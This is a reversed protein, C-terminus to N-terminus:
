ALKYALISEPALLFSIRASILSYVAIWVTGACGVWFSIIAETMALVLDALFVTAAGFTAAGTGTAASGTAAGTAAAM